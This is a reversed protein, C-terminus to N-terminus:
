RLESIADLNAHATTSNWNALPVGRHPGINRHRRVAPAGPLAFPRARLPYPTM